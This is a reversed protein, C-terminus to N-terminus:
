TSRRTATTASKRATPVVLGYGAFVVPGRADGDDSFSLARVGDGVLGEAQRGTSTVGIASGGDRSGATFEFPVLYDTLGPVPKAGIRKLESVIYDAALREGASGTLRGEFKESALTQVHQRTRSQAGVSAAALAVGLAVVCVGRFCSIVFYRNQNEHKRTKTAANYGQMM